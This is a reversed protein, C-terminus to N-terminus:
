CGAKVEFTWLRDNEKLAKAVAEWRCGVKSTSTKRSHAKSPRIKGRSCGITVRSYGFDKIKNDSRLKIVSFGAQACYEQLDIMLEALSAYKYTLLTHGQPPNSFPAVPGNDRNTDNDSDYDRDHDSKENPSDSFGGWDSYDDDSLTM